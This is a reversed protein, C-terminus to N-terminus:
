NGKGGTSAAALDAAAKKRPASRCYAKVARGDSRQYSAVWLCAKDSVCDNHGLTKCAAPQAGATMPFVAAVLTAAFLHTRYANM